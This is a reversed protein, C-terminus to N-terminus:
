EIEGYFKKWARAEINGDPLANFSASTKEDWIRSVFLGQDIGQHCFPTYSAVRRSLTKFNLGLDSVIQEPLLSVLYSYRSLRADFESFARVSTTAGGIEANAELLLVRKGAKALYIAAILGNHGAGVIIIDYKDKTM